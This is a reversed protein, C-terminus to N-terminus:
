YYSYVQQANVHIRVYITAVFLVRVTFIQQAYVDMQNM